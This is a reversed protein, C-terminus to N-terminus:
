STSCGTSISKTNRLFRMGGVYQISSLWYFDAILPEFGSSVLRIDDAKPIFEPHEVLDREIMAHTKREVEVASHFFFFGSVLTILFIALAKM